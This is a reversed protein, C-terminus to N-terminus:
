AGKVVYVIFGTKIIIIKIAKSRNATRKEREKTRVIADAIFVPKSKRRFHWFGFIKKAFVANKLL